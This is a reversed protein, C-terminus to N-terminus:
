MFIGQRCSNRCPDNKNQKNPTQRIEAGTTLRGRGRPDRRGPKEVLEDVNGLRYERWEELLLKKDQQILNPSPLKPLQLRAQVEQCIKRVSYGKKYLEAVIELRALRKQRQKRNQRNNLEQIDM